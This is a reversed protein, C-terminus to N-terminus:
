LIEQERIILFVDGSELKKVKLITKFKKKGKFYAVDYKRNVLVKIMKNKNGKVVVDKDM